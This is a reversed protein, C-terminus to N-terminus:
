DISTSEHLKKLHAKYETISGNWRQVPNDGVIWIEEAVQSILRFDHSVLVM